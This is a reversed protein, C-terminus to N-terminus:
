SLNLAIMIQIKVYLAFGLPYKKQQQVCQENYDCTNYYLFFLSGVMFLKLPKTHLLYFVVDCSTLQIQM